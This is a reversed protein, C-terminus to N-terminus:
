KNEAVRARVDIIPTNAGANYCAYRFYPYGTKFVMVVSADSAPNETGLWQIGATGDLMWNVGDESFELSGTVGTTTGEANVQLM